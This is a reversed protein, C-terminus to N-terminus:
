KEIEEFFEDVAKLTDLVRVDVGVNRLREHERKQGIRAKGKPRKLEVLYVRGIFAFFRDPANRRGIWKLKRCEGGALKARLEFYAEVEAELM